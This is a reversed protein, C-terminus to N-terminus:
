FTPPGSFNGWDTYVCPSWLCGLFISSFICGCGCSCEASASLSLFWSLNLVPKPGDWKKQMSRVYLSLGVLVSVSQYCCDVSAEQLSEHLQLRSFRWSGRDGEHVGAFGASHSLTTGTGCWRGQSWPNQLVHLLGWPLVSQSYWPAGSHESIPASQPHLCGMYFYVVTYNCSCFSFQYKFIVFHLFM